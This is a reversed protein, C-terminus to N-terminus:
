QGKKMKLIKEENPTVYATRSTSYTVFGPKAGNPKKLNKALTYTVGVNNGMRSSSHYAAIEAADTVAEDTVARGETIMIAHSGTAGLVHLWLDEKRALKTSLYDNQTNNRGVLVTFGDSVTYEIPKSAASKKKARDKSGRRVYGGEILENRIDAIEGESEARSLLDLVSALYESETKAKEIQERLVKEATKLKAYKKFAVQANKAANYQPNLPVKVLPMGEEYYNPLMAFSAGKEIMSINATILEGYLRYKERDESVKLESLQNVIKKELKGLTNQCFKTLQSSKNKLREAKEKKEYFDDLLASFSSKPINKYKEGYQSVFIVTFDKPKDPEIEQLYPTVRNEKIKNLFECVTDALRKRTSFDLESYDIDAEIEAKYVLERAILPSFGMINSMLIKDPRATDECDLLASVVRDTDALPDIKGYSDPLTYKVGHIIQRSAKESIDTKHLSDIISDNEDTLVINTQRGLVELVLSKRSEEGLENVTMFTLKAVREFSLQSISELRAGILHKRLLMCFMPPVEPNERQIKTIQVRPNNVSASLLLRLNGNKTHMLLMVEDREPQYIKEVRGGVCIGNIENVVAHLFVADFPM